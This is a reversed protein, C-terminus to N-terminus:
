RLTIFSIQRGAKEKDRRYSWYNNDTITNHNLFHCQEDSIGLFRLQGLIIEQLNLFIKDKDQHPLTFKDQNIYDNYPHIVKKFDNFLDMGIEFSKHQISPGILIESNQNVLEQKKIESYFLIEKYVSKWGAHIATIKQKTKIMIPVCDATKICLAINKDQTWHGDAEREEVSSPVIIDSHIQKLHRFKLKPFATLLNDASSVKNGFFVFYDQGHYISGLPHSSFKNM